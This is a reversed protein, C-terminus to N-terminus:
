TPALVATPTAPVSTVGLEAFITAAEREAAAAIDREGSANAAAVLAHQTLAIEFRADRARAEELSETLAAYGEDVRGLAVLAVGRIRQLVTLEVQGRSRELQADAMALAADFDGRLNLCEATRADVELVDGTSGISAFTDRAEALLAFAADFDGRRAAIRGLHMTALAHGSPHEVARWVRAADRFSQEAADLHGQDALVEGINMTGSAADVANGTVLRAARGQDYLELAETWRGEWYAFAGLNNLVVAQGGLDDLERYIELARASHTALEPHGREVHIWDLIFRAQAEAALAGAAVADAVAETCVAAAEDSRGQTQRVIAHWTKLQARPETAGVGAADLLQLGRRATAVVRRYHGTREAIVAEKVLLGAEAPADGARLKRASRYAALATDFHGSRERADGLVEWADAIDDSPLEARVYRSAALARELFEGAEVNAYKAYARRGAIQAYQWADAFRQAHFCHLSLLEAESEVDDGLRTAMADCARSHLTRRRRYALGEYVTDRLLAHRFAITDTSGVILFGSLQDWMADDIVPLDPEVVARLEALSFTRGLVSAYRLLLQHAPPLLDVQASIVADVSEPLSDVGTARATALLESLFLPSGAARAALKAIDGPRLPADETAGLLAAASEEETLPEPRLTFVHPADSQLDLDDRNTACVLANRARLGQVIVSLIAQSASDMWHLDEAVVLVPTPMLADVLLATVENVRDRRFEPALRATEVTDPLDLDLPTALLPLWPVLDPTADTVVRALRAAVEDRPADPAVDLLDHLLWWFAAYPTHAEYPDCTIRMTPLRGAVIRELEETLRSKGIGAGGVIQVFRGDGQLVADVQETLATIEAKRGVLPLSAAETLARREPAGLAFAEVALRKGKVMFPELATTSWPTISHRLVAPTTIVQGPEARAMLRASLNVADGMLTYTRRFAPGINGAFVSGRHVGARVPLRHPRAVVDHVAALLRDEDREARRPAGAALIIKGGDKDVDTALFTVDRADVTQQVDVVLEELAAAVAAPGEQEFLADTGDFHLFAVTVQRHEPDGGGAELHRRIATPLFPAPEFGRPVMREFPLASAVPRAGRRIRIGPGLPAGLLAPPLAAATAASVIVEGASAAGEMAATTTVAPGALLLERHSDGVLFCGFEGSHVGASMRLTVRGATTDIRGVERLRHQMGIAANTARPAHGDDEFLLLLADGGFKLLSGGNDYAVALLETFAHGIVEAVEEAGVKGHRALRESMKTFGSVDVFVLTGDIVRWREDPAAHTWDVSLRPLYSLLDVTM